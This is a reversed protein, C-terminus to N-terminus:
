ANSSMDVLAAVQGGAQLRVVEEVVDADEVAASLEELQYKEVDDQQTLRECHHAASRLSSRM